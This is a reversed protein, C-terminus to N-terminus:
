KGEKEIMDIIEKLDDVSLRENEVFQSVVKKYSNDLYDRVVGGLYRQGYQERNMTAAYRYSLGEPKHTTFGKKELSRVMTSVTNFHPKPEAYLSLMESVTLPGNDWLLDMVEEERKTIESRMKNRILNNDEATKSQGYM